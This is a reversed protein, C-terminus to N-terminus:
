VYFGDKFGRFFTKTDGLGPGNPSVSFTGPSMQLVDSYDGTPSIFNRIYTSSIVSEASKADLSSQSPAAEVALTVAAEVTVSQSVNAIQMAIPLSVTAGSALRLGNRIDASFGPAVVDVSYVGAPLNGVTFHGDAATITSRVAGSTENKVAVAAQQIPSGTPDLVTGSVSATGTTDVQAQLPGQGVIVLSMLAIAAFVSRAHKM